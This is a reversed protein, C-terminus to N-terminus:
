TSGTATRFGSYRPQDIAIQNVVTERLHVGLRADELSQSGDRLEKVLRWRLQELDEQSGFFAQLRELERAKTEAGLAIERLVIDLSNSAVRAMFNSRGTTATMVEGRLFDRVSTVLEDIRPMDLTSDFPQPPVLEVPGPILLNVCD